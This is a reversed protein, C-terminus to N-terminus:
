MKLVLRVGDGFAGGREPADGITRNAFGSCPGTQFFRIQRRRIARRHQLEQHVVDSMMGIREAGRDLLGAVEAVCDGGIEEGLQRALEILIKPEQFRM